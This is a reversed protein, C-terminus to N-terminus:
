IIRPQWQYASVAGPASLTTGTFVQNTIPLLPTSSSAFFHREKAYTTPLQYYLQKSHVCPKLMESGLISNSTKGLPSRCLFLGNWVGSSTIWLNTHALPATATPLHLVSGTGTGSTCKEKLRFLFHSNSLTLKVTLCLNGPQQQFSDAACM